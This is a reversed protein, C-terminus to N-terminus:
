QPHQQVRTLKDDVASAIGSTRPPNEMRAGLEVQAQERQSRAAKRPPRPNTSAAGPSLRPSSGGAFFGAGCSPAAAFVGGLSGGRAARGSAVNRPVRAEPLRKQMMASADLLM